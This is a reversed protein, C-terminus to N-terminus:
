KNTLNQYNNHSQWENNGSLKQNPIKKVFM